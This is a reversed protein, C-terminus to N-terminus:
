WATVPVSIYRGGESSTVKLIKINQILKIVIFTVPRRVNHRVAVDAKLLLNAIFMDVVTVSDTM